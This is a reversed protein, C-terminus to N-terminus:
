GSFASLRQPGSPPPPPEEGLALARLAGRDCPLGNYRLVEHLNVNFRWATDSGAIGLLAVKQLEDLAEDDEYAASPFAIDLVARAVGVAEVPGVEDLAQVFRPLHAAAQEPPLMALTQVADSTPDGSALYLQGFGPVEAGGLVAILASVAEDGPDLGLRLWTLAACTRELADGQLAPQLVARTADSPGDLWLGLLLEARVVAEPETTVRARAIDGAGRSVSVLVAAWERLLRPEAALLREWLDRHAELAAYVDYYCPENGHEGFLARRGEDDDAETLSAEYLRRLEVTAGVQGCRTAIQALFRVLPVIREDDEALTAAIRCLVPYVPGTVESITGQHLIPDWIERMALRFCAADVTLGKLYFAFGDPSGFWTDLESWGVDQVGDLADVWPAAHWRKVARATEALDEDRPAELTGMDVPDGDVTWTGIPSGRLGAEVTGEAALAGDADFARAREADGEPRVELRVRGAADWWTETVLGDEGDIRECHKSGDPHFRRNATGDALTEEESALRGEDDYKRVIRKSGDETYVTDKEPLGRRLERLMALRGGEFTAEEARCFTYGYPAWWRKWTGVARGGADIEGIVFRELSPVWVAEDPVGEQREQEPRPDAVRPGAGGLRGVLDALGEHAAHLRVPDGAGLGLELLMEVAAGDGLRAAEVLVHGRCHEAGRTDLVAKVGSSPDSGPDHVELRFLEGEPTWFRSVGRKSAGHWQQAIWFGEIGNFFAEHPLGAPKDPVPGGGLDLETGDEAWFQQKNAWGDATSEFGVRRIVEPTGDFNPERTEATTRYNVVRRMTGELYDAESAVSGDDHYRVKRGHLKDDVFHSDEVFTGDPRWCKWPGQKRGDVTEGLAWEDWDEFFTAAAPVNSPREM